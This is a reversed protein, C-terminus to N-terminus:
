THLRKKKRNYLQECVTEWASCLVPRKTSLGLKFCGLHQVLWHAHMEIDMILMHGNGSELEDVKKQTILLALVKEFCVGNALVHAWWAAAKCRRSSNQVGCPQILNPRFRHAQLHLSYTRVTCYSFRRCWRFYMNYTILLWYLLITALSAFYNCCRIHAM